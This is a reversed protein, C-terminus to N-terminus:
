AGHTTTEAYQGNRREIEAAIDIDLKARGAPGAKQYAYANGLSNGARVIKRWDDLNAGYPREEVVAEAAMLRTPKGPVADFWYGPSGDAYEYCGTGDARRFYASEGPTGMQIRWNSGYGRPAGFQADSM